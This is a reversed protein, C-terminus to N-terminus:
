NAYQYNGVCDPSWVGTSQGYFPNDISAFACRTPNADSRGSDRNSIIICKGKQVEYFFRWEKNKCRATFESFLFCNGEKDTKNGM